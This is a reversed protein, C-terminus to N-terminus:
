QQVWKKNSYNKLIDDVGLRDSADTRVTVKKSIIDAM